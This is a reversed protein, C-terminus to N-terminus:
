DSDPEVVYGRARDRSEAAADRQDPTGYGGGGPTGLLITDGRRVFHPRRNDVEQGNSQAFATRMVLRSAALIDAYREGVQQLLRTSGEMDTFLLTVTGTPLEPM